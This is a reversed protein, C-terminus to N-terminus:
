FLKKITRMDLLISSLRRKNSTPLPLNVLTKWIKRVQPSFLTIDDAFATVALSSDVMSFGLQSEQLQRVLPDVVMKFILPSLPRRAEDRESDSHYCWCKWTRLQGKM